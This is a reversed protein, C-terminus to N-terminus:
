TPSGTLLELLPMNRDIRHQAHGALTNRCEERNNNNNNNHNNHNNNNNNNATAASQEAGTSAAAQLAEDSQERQYM